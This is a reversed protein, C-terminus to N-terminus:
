IIRYLAYRRNAYLRRFTGPPQASRPLVAYFSRFSGYTEIQRPSRSGDLVAGNQRLRRDLEKPETRLRSQYWGAIYVQRGAIAPYYNLGASAAVDRGTMSTFVLADRPVLRRVHRWADYQESPLITTDYTGLRLTGAQGARGAAVAGLVLFAAVAAPAVPRLLRSPAALLAAAAAALVMAALAHGALALLAMGGVLAYLRAHFWLLERAPRGAATTLASLLTATLCATEVLGARVGAFDRFWTGAALCLGAAALTGRPLPRERFLLTSLLAAIGLGVAISYGSITWSWLLCVLLAALLANARARLLAIALLLYGALELAPALEITSRTDLQSRLGRYATLPTFRLHVVHLIWFSNQLTWAIVALAGLASGAVLVRLRRASPRYREHVAFALLLALPVLVLGKTLALDIAVVLAGAAFARPAVEGWALVYISFALPLALAVPPSEALWSPYAVAATGVLALVVSAPGDLAPAPRLLTFGICLSALAFAPLLTTHFLFPETGPLRTVVAGLLSPGIEAQWLHVGSAALDRLPFLSEKASSLKAVYWVVDGFANSDLRKTPGHLFFGLVIPLGLVAPLAWGVAGCCRRVVAAAPTAGSALAGAVACAGLVGLWPTVLFCLCAVLVLLLGLPYAFVSAESAPTLGVPRGARLMGFGATWVCAAALIGLGAHLFISLTLELM